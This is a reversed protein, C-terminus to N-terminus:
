VAAHQCPSKMGITGVDVGIVALDVNADGAHFRRKLTRPIVDTFDKKGSADIPDDVLPRGPRAHNHFAAERERDLSIAINDTGRRNLYIHLGACEGHDNRAGLM